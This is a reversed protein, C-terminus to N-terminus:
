YWGRRDADVMSGYKRLEDYTVDRLDPICVDLARMAGESRILVREGPMLYLAGKGARNLLVRHYFRTGTPEDSVELYECSAPAGNPYRVEFAIRCTNNPKVHRNIDSNPVVAVVGGTRTRYYIQYQTDLDDTERDEHVGWLADGEIETKADRIIAALAAQPTTLEPPNDWTLILSM